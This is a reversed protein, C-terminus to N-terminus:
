PKISDISNMHGLKVSVSEFQNCVGLEASAPPQLHHAPQLAGSAVHVGDLRLVVGLVQGECDAQAGGVLQHAGHVGPAAHQGPELVEGELAGLVGLLLALLVSVM